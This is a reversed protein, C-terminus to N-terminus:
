LRSTSSQHIGHIKTAFTNHEDHELTSFSCFVTRRQNRLLSLQILLRLILSCHQKGVCVRVYTSWMRSLTHPAPLVDVVFRRFVAAVQTSTNTRCCLVMCKSYVQHKTGVFTQRRLTRKTFMRLVIEVGRACKIRWTITMSAYGNRVQFSFKHLHSNISDNTHTLHM